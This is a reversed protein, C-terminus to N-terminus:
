HLDEPVFRELRGIARLKDKDGVRSQDIGKRIIDISNDMAQRDIPFPVGDKGGVAFSYKVPDKWSVETGYILSSILALARVTGPGIGKLGLLEEFNRPQFEYAGRLVNWNINKPMHLGKLAGGIKEGAWEDLTSQMPMGAGQVLHRFHQPGDNILDVAGKRTEGSLKATMDLVSEQRSGLITSHPAKVFCNVEEGLWHYRRAFGMEECLGQQIVCWEGRETMFFNHIYLRHGDQIAANDVKASLRSSRILGEVKNDIGFNNCLVEIEQPTRRSARGKGGAIGVGLDLADIGEKLAGCTVSTTGSSHWDMGTACSLAQFWFPNSIRRLLEASGYEEVVAGAIASGLKVMRGFLWRPVHGGHLPLNAYGTRM